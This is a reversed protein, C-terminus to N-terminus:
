VSSVEEQHDPDTEAASAEREAVEVTIETGQGPLSSLSFVGSIKETRESMDLLGFHGGYVATSKDPVFGIGDDTVRLRVKDPEYALTVEIRTAHSHKLANAVAEQAIRLLHNEVQMPLKHQLGSTEVSIRVRTSAAMLKAVESLATPLNSNELLHSRLDWVSRRAEFLSRRTMNRPPLWCVSAM